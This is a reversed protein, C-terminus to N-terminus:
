DLINMDFLEDIGTGCESARTDLSILALIFTSSYLEAIDAEMSELSADKVTVDKETFVVDTDGLTSADVKISKVEFFDSLSLELPKIEVVKNGRTIVYENSIFLGSEGALMDTLIIKKGEVKAYVGYSETDEVSLVEPNEKLYAALKDFSAEMKKNSSEAAKVTVKCKFKTGKQTTATVTTSGSKKATVVGTKSVTAVKKNSSKWTVTATSNLLELKATDGVTLTLKTKSLKAKAAAFTQEPVHVATCAFVIALVMLLSLLRKKM